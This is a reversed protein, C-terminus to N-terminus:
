SQEKEWGDPLHDDPHNVPANGSGTKDAQIHKGLFVADMTKLLPNLELMASQLTAAARALHSNATDADPTEGELCASADHLAAMVKELMALAESMPQGKQM